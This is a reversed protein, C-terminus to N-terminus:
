KARRGRPPFSPEKSRKSSPASGGTTSASSAASKTETKESQGPAFSAAGENGAIEKTEQYLQREAELWIEEDRGVPRGRAIWLVEARSSIQEHTLKADVAAANSPFDNEPKM